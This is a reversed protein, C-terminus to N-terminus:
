LIICIIGGGGHNVMRELTLRLKDQAKEPMTCLKGEIGESVLDYLTKGFVNTEWVKRPNDEFEDMIHRALEECQKETGVLPTVETAIDARIMHYSPASAKLRVGFRSGEKMLEPEELQMEDLQPTVIGYGNERVEAMAEKVKDWERHSVSYNKILRMITQDGLIPEGSFEELIRYYCNKDIAVDLTSIGTSLDMSTLKAGEADALTALAAVGNDLDSVRNISDIINYIDKELHSRLWHNSDLEQVWGPLNVNVEAVPFEYLSERLIAIVDEYEMNVADVPVVSVQYADRLENALEQTEESFPNASNLVMVFPKDLEKLESIVREEAELYAGRDIDTVSGDTAVLIGITSHDHIVKRTGIEAAEEFPIEEESWPSRVMRPEEGEDFGLVGPVAYGVCDVMRVRMDIGESVNIEVANSPIFKPETTMVTKGAGSQPLEDRAIEQEHAEEINPLVLLEMFRKIFTSKGTRVPGVVGLYIDGGTRESIHQLVDAKEM